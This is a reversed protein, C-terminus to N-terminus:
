RQGTLKRHFSGTIQRNLNKKVLIETTLLRRCCEVVWMGSGGATRGMGNEGRVM